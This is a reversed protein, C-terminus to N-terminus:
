VPPPLLPLPPLLTCGLGEPCAGACPAGDGAGGGAEVCGCCCGCYGCCCCACYGRAATLLPRGGGSWNEGACQTHGFSGLLPVLGREELYEAQGISLPNGLSLGSPPIGAAPQMCASARVERLMIVAFQRHEVNQSQRMVVLFNSILADPHLKLQEFVAEAGSRVEDDPLMLQTLLGEFNPGGSLLSAVDMTAM